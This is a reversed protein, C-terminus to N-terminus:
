FHADMCSVFTQVSRLRVEHQLLPDKGPSARHALCVDCKSIYEKLETSMRPWYMSDRARRICGETGIHTAHAVAEDGQADCCPHASM